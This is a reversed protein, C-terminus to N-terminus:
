TAAGLQAEEKIKLRMKLTEPAVKALFAVIGVTIIAEGIGIIAHTAMMTPISIAATIGYTPDIAYSAALEVACATAALFVSIWAALFVGIYDYKKPTLRLMAYASLSGIIAMNLINLGMATIGGDGFVLGQIILVVFIIVMAAWPGLLVTALAAGVLHGTTGGIIPFNLMQAVFIGAALIAMYPLSREDITKSVRKFAIAIVILAIIWGSIWVIPEMLGDPIHMLGRRM